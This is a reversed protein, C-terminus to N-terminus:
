RHLVGILSNWGFAILGIFAAMLLNKWFTWDERSVFSETVEKLSAQFLERQTALSTNFRESMARLSEELEADRSALKEVAIAVHRMQEELRVLREVVEEIGAGLFSGATPTQRMTPEGIPTVSSPEDIAGGTDIFAAQM